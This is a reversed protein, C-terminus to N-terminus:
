LGIAVHGQKEKHLCSRSRVSKGKNEARRKGAEGTRWSSLKVNFAAYFCVKYIHINKKNVYFQHNQRLFYKMRNGDLRNAFKVHKVKTLLEKQLKEENIEEVTKYYSRNWQLLWRNNKHKHHHEWKHMHTQVHLTHSWTFAELGSRFSHSIPFIM